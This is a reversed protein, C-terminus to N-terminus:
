RKAKAERKIALKTERKTLKRGQFWYEDKRAPGGIRHPVGDLFWERVRSKGDASMFDTAPGDERHHRGNQLWQHNGNLSIAPGDIRHHQNRQLWQDGHIYVVAPGNEKHNFGNEDFFFTFIGKVVLLGDEVRLTGPKVLEPTVGPKVLAKNQALALWDLLDKSISPGQFSAKSLATKKTGFLLGQHNNAQM